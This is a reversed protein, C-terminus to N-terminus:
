WVDIRPLPYADLDTYLNITQSYDVCMQQKDNEAGKVVVVQARWPSIRPQIIGKARQRTIESNIFEQDSKNFQRSKVATPKVDNSINRFLSPFAATVSSIACVNRAGIFDDKRGGFKFVVQKHQSQFDHGLLIDTCLNKMIKLSVFNYNVGNINLDAVCPGAINNKLNSSAMLVNKHHPFVKLKLRKATTENIFSSSSGTDILTSVEVGKIYAVATKSSLRAGTSDCM